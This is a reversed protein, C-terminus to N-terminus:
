RVLVVRVGELDEPLELPVSRDPRWDRVEVRVRPESQLEAAARLLGLSRLEGALAAVHARIRERHQEALSRLARTDSLRTDISLERIELAPVRPALEELLRLRWTNRLHDSVTSYPVRFSKSRTRRVIAPTTLEGAPAPLMISYGCWPPWGVGNSCHTSHGFSGGFGRAGDPGIVCVSARWVPGLM